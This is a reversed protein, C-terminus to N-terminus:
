RVKKARNEDQGGIGRLYAVRIVAVFVTFLANFWDGGRWGAVDLRDQQKLLAYMTALLALDVGLTAAQVIRWIKPDPSVRLLVGFIIAMFGYLAASQHLLPGHSIPSFPEISPPLVTELITAPSFICALVTFFLVVPEIITFWVRYFPHVHPSAMNDSQKRTSEKLSSSIPSTKLAPITSMTSLRFKLTLPPSPRVYAACFPVM